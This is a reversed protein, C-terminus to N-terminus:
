TLLLFYYLFTDAGKHGTLCTSVYMLIFDGVNKLLFICSCEASLLSVAAQSLSQNAESSDTKSEYFLTQLDASPHQLIMVCLCYQKM